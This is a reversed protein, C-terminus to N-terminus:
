PTRVCVNSGSPGEDEDRDVSGCPPSWIGSVKWPRALLVAAAELDGNRAQELLREVLGPLERAVMRDLKTTLLSKAGRPGAAYIARADAVSAAPM